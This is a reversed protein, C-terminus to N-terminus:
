VLTWVTFIRQSKLGLPRTVCILVNDLLGMNDNSSSVFFKSVNRHRKVRNKGQSKLKTNARPYPTFNGGVKKLPLICFLHFKACISFAKLIKLFRFIYGYINVKYNKDSTLIKLM